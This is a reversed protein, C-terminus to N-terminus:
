ASGACKLASHVGGQLRCSMHTKGYSIGGVRIADPETGFASFGCKEYLNTAPKNGETVTLVILEIAHKRADALVVQVLALGLGRGAFEPAVFMGFLMAKHKNKQRTEPNLGIMGALETGIFAGWIKDSSPNALRQEAYTAPRTCEEEYDSTFAEPYERFGRLRFARYADVDQSALRRILPMRTQQLMTISASTAEPATTDPNPDSLTHM